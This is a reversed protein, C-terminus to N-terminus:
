GCETHGTQNETKKVRCKRGWTGRRSGLRLLPTRGGGRPGAPPDQPRAGPAPSCTLPCAGHHGTGVRPTLWSGAEAMGVPPAHNGDAKRQCSAKFMQELGPHVQAEGRSAGNGVLVPPETKHIQLFRGSSDVGTSRWQPGCSVRVCNLMTLPGLSSTYIHTIDRLISPM